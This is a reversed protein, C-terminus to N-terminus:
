KLVNHPPPKRIHKKELMISWRILLAYFFGGIESSCMRDRPGDTHFWKMQEWRDLRNSYKYFQHFAQLFLFLNLHSLVTLAVADQEAYNLDRHIFFSFCASIETEGPVVM